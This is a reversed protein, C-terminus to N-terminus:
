ADRLEYDVFGGRVLFLFVFDDWVLMGGPCMEGLSGRCLGCWRGM